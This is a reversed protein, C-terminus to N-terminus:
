GGWSIIGAQRSARNIKAVTAQPQQQPLPSKAPTDAKKDGWM